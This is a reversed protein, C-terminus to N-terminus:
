AGRDSFRNYATIETILPDVERGYIEARLFAVEEERDAADVDIYWAKTGGMGEGNWRYGRAKLTDKLDFPAGTAWIRASKKRANALLVELAPRGSRPLPRALIEIAALCDNEARLKDYFFGSETALYALKMGDFGEEAWPIQSM